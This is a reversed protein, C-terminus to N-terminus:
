AAFPDLVLTGAVVIPEPVPEGLERLLEIHQAMAERMLDTVEQRTAAAAVVGPLDPSYTSYGETDDGEIVVVYGSL